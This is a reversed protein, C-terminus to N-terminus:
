KQENQKLLGIENEPNTPNMGDAKEFIDLNEESRDTTKMLQLGLVNRNESDLNRKSKETKKRNCCLVVIAVVIPILLLLLLCYLNQNKEITSPAPDISQTSSDLEETQCHVTDIPQCFVRSIAAQCTYNLPLSLDDVEKMLTSTVRDSHNTTTMGQNVVDGNTTVWQLLPAFKGSFTMNCELTVNRPLSGCSDTANMKCNVTDIVTLEADKHQGLGEKEICRYLGGDGSKVAKIILSNTGTTRNMQAEYGTVYNNFFKGSIYMDVPLTKWLPIHQWNVRETKYFTTCILQVSAGVQAEGHVPAIHLDTNETVNLIADVHEGRGEQDRCRYTGADKLQVTPIVLNYVGETRNGNMEFRFQYGNVLGGGLFVDKPQPLVDGQAVPVYQWSIPTTPDSTSCNLQVRQGEVASTNHPKVLLTSTAYCFSVVFSIGVKWYYQNRYMKVNSSSSISFLRSHIKIGYSNDVCM